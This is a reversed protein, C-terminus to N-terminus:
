KKHEERWKLTVEYNVDAGLKGIILNSLEASATLGFKLEAETVHLDEVEALLLKAQAKASALAERFKKEAKVIKNEDGRSSLVVGGSQKEPTEILITMGDELEYEVYTPM